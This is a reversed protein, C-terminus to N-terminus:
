GYRLNLRGLDYIQKMIPITCTNAFDSIMFVLYSKITLIKKNYRYSQLNMYLM